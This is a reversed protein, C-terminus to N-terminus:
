NKLLSISDDETLTLMEADELYILFYHAEPINPVQAPMVGTIQQVRDMVAKMYDHKRDHNQWDDAKMQQVIGIPTNADYRRGDVTTVHIM